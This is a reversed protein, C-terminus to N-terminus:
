WEAGVEAVRKVAAAAGPQVAAAGGPQVVAAAGPQVVAAAGAVSWTVAEVPRGQM